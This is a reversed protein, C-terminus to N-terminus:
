LISKAGKWIGGRDAGYKWTYYAEMAFNVIGLNVKYLAQTNYLGIFINKLFQRLGYVGARM